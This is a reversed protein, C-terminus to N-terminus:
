NRPLAFYDETIVPEFGAGTYIALARDNEVAVELRIRDAGDTRLQECARRLADRGIGRGQWRPDVVFGYIGGDPGDRTVTLTRVSLGDFEIVLTQARPSNLRDALDDPAPGGFGAQFLRAILPLDAKSAQRLGLAPDRLGDTPPGSLVLGHESHDLVGGRNVAFRQGPESSRPVILLVERHNRERYLPAAADLLATAIGRRRADPAVMGALELTSGYAYFGLFGDLRDGDWWLLDDVRDGSRARLTAWELKLRGGDADVVRRELEAIASLARPTLGTAQELVSV